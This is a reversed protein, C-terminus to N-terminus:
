TRTLQSSRCQIELLAQLQMLSQSPLPHQPEHLPQTRSQHNSKHFPLLTIAENFLVLTSRRRYQKRIATFILLVLVLVM